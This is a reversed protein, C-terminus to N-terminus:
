VVGAAFNGHAAPGKLGSAANKLFAASKQPAAGTGNAGKRVGAAQRFAAARQPWKPEAGGNEPRRPKGPRFLRAIM